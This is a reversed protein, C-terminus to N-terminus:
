SASLMAIYGPKLPRSGPQNGPMLKENLLRDFRHLVKRHEGILIPVSNHASTRRLLPRGQLENLREYAIRARMTSLVASDGRAWQRYGRQREAKSFSRM